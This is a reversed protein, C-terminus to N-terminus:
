MLRALWGTIAAPKPKDRPDDGRAYRAAAELGRGWTQAAVSSPYPNRYQHKGHAAYGEEFAPHREYGDYEAKIAALRADTM